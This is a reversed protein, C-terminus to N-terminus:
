IAFETLDCESFVPEVSTVVLSLVLMCAELIDYM